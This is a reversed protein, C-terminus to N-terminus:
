VHTNHKKKFKAHDSQKANKNSFTNAIWAPKKEGTEAISWKARLNQAAPQWFAHHFMPYGWYVVIPSFGNQDTLLCMYQYTYVHHNVKMKM